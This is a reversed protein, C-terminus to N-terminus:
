CMVISQYIRAGLMKNPCNEFMRQLHFFKVTLEQIVGPNWMDIWRGTERFDIVSSDRKM